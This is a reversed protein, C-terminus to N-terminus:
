RFCDSCFQERVATKRGGAVRVQRVRIHVGNASLGLRGQVDIAFAGHLLPPPRKSPQEILPRSAYGFRAIIKNSGWLPRWSLRGLGEHRRGQTPGTTATATPRRRSSLYAPDSLKRQAEQEEV